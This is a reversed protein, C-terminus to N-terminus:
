ARMGAAHAVPSRISSISCRCNHSPTAEEGTDPFGPRNQRRRWRSWFWIHRPDPAYRQVLSILLRRIEPVTHGIM